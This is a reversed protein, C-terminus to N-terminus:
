TDLTADKIKIQLADPGEAGPPRPVINENWPHSPGCGELDPVLRRM